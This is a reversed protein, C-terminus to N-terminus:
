LTYTAIGMWEKRFVIKTTQFCKTEKVLANLFKSLVNLISYIYIYIYVITETYMYVYTYTHIPIPLPIPILTYTCPYTNLFPCSGLVKISIIIIM